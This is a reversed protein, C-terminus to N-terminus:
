SRSLPPLELAIMKGRDPTAYGAPIFAIGALALVEKQVMRERVLVDLPLQDGLAKEDLIRDYLRPRFFGANRGVAFRAMRRLRMGYFWPSRQGPGTFDILLEVQKPSPVGIPRGSTTRFFVAAEPYSLFVKQRLSEIDYVMGRSSLVVLVKQVGAFHNGKVRERDSLHALYTKPDGDKETARERPYVPTNTESTMQPM